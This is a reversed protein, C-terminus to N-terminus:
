GTGWSGRHKVYIQMLVKWPVSWLGFVVKNFVIATFMDWFYIFNQVNEFFLTTGIPEFNFKQLIKSNLIDFSEINFLVIIKVSFDLHIWTKSYNKVNIVFGAKFNWYWGKKPMLLFLRQFTLTGFSPSWSVLCLLQKYVLKILQNWILEYFKSEFRKPSEFLERSFWVICCKFQICIRFDSESHTGLFLKFCTGIRHKIIYFSFKVM